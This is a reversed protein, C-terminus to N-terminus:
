AAPPYFLNSQNVVRAWCAGDTNGAGTALLSLQNLSTLTFLIVDVGKELQYGNSSTLAASGANGVFIYTASNGGIPRIQYTGPGADEFEVPTGATTSRAQGTIAKVSAM